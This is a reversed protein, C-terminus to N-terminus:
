RPVLDAPPAFEFRDLETWTDGARQWLVFATAQIEYPRFTRRLTTVTARARAPSVGNQVAVYPRLARQDRESLHPWWSEQLGRHRHTLEAALLGYAVGHSLPLVGAVGLTFGPGAADALDLRVAPGIEGPIERFLQVHTAHVPADPWLRGREDDFKQRAADDIALTVALPDLLGRTM